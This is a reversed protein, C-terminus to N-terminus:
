LMLNMQTHTQTWWAYCRGHWLQKTWMDQSPKFRTTHKGLPVRRAGLSAVNQQATREQLAQRWSRFLIQIDLMHHHATVSPIRAHGAFHHADEHKHRGVFAFLACIHNNHPYDYMQDSVLYLKARRGQCADYKGWRSLSRCHPLWSPSASSLSISIGYPLPQFVSPPLRSFDLKNNEPTKLFTEM